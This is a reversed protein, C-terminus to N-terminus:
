TAPQARSLSPWTGPATTTAFQPRLTFSLLLIIATLHSGFSNISSEAINHVTTMLVYCITLAAWDFDVSFLAHARGVVSLLFGAYLFLGVFGLELLVELYGNHAHSMKYKERTAPTWFSAFGGGLIPQRKVVPVLERWTDTRGTLTDDRGLASSSLGLTLGGLFPTAAGYAIIFGATAVLAFRPIPISRARAWHFGAFIMLGFALSAISTASYAGPPGKLLWFTLALLFLDVRTQRKMRRLLGARWRQVLTWILFFASVMCLRGLGNKQLCVGIWMREGSWRGYEIGYEPYYKILLISFPITIYTTRRLVSVIAARPDPETAILAAMALATMGRVWRKFSVFPIDSWALSVLMFFVLAFLWPHQRVLNSPNFNRRLVVGLAIVLLGAHLLRDLPSGSEPDGGSWPFWIGLPKTAIALIWITPLWAARTLGGSQTKDHRLLYFVFAVCAILALVPPM